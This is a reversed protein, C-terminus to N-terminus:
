TGPDILRGVTILETGGFCRNGVATCEATEAIRRTLSATGTSSRAPRRVTLQATVMSLVDRAFPM